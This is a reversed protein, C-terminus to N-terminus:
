AVSTGCSACFRAESGVHTGCQSCYSGGSPTPPIPQVPSRSTDAVEVKLTYAATGKLLRSDDLRRHVAAEFDRPKSINHLLSRTGAGNVVVTGYRFLRGFFSYTTSLGSISTFLVDVSQRRIIGYKGIVRRDTVAYEATRQLIVGRILDAIALLGVVGSAGTLSVAGLYLAFIVLLVGRLLAAPWSMQGRYEITEGSHTNRDIYGTM